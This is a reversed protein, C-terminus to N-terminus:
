VEERLSGAPTCEPPFNACRLVSRHFDLWRIAVGTLFGSVGTDPSNKIFVGTFEPPSRHVGIFFGTLKTNHTTLIRSIKLNPSKWLLNETCFSSFPNFTTLYKKLLIRQDKRFDLKIPWIPDQLILFQDMFFVGMNSASLMKWTISLLILDMKLQDLLPM